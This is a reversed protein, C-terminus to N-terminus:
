TKQKTKNQQQYEGLRCGQLFEKGGVVLGMLGDYCCGLVWPM